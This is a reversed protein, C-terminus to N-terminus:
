SDKREDRRLPRERWSRRQRFAERLAAHCANIATLESARLSKPVREGRRREVNGFWWARRAELSVSPYSPGHSDIQLGCAVPLLELVRLTPHVGRGDPEEPCARVSPADM